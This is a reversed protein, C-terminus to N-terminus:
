GMKYPSDSLEIVNYGVVGNYLYLYKLYEGDVDLDTEAYEGLADYLCKRCYEKGYSNVIDYININYEKVYKEILGNDDYLITADYDPAEEYWKKVLYHYDTNDIPTKNMMMM